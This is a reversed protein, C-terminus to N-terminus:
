PRGSTLLWLLSYLNQTRRVRFSEVVKSGDLHKVVYEAGDDAIV